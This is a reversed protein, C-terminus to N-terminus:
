STSASRRSTSAADEVGDEVLEEPADGDLGEPWLGGEGGVVVAPKGV